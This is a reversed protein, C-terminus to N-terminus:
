ATIPISHVIKAYAALTRWMAAGPLLTGSTGDVFTQILYPVRGLQGRAIPQPSPLGHAAAQTLCWAESEFEDPRLPDIPIRVVVQERRFRVLFTKNVSGGAIATIREPRLGHREIIARILDEDHM